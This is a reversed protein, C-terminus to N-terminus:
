QDCATAAGNPRHTWRGDRIIFDDSNGFRGDAGASAIMFHEGDASVEYRYERGFGDHEPFTKLYTPTLATRVQATTKTGGTRYRPDTSPPWSAPILHYTSLDTYRAQWALAVGCMDTAIRSTDPGSDRRLQQGNEGDQGNGPQVDVVRWGDDYRRFTAEGRHNDEKAGTYLAIEETLNTFHWTFDAVKEGPEPGDTIGTVETVQRKLPRSLTTAVLSVASFYKAGKRTPEWWGGGREWMGDSQARAFASENVNYIKDTTAFKANKNILVTASARSLEKSRTEDAATTASIAMGYSLFAAAGVIYGLRSVV